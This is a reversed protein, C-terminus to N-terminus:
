RQQRQILAPDFQPNAYPSVRKRFISTYRKPNLRLDQSLWRIHEMSMNINNYLSDNTLLQGLSGNGNQLNSVLLNITGIATDATAMTLRLRDIAAESKTLTSKLDVQNLNSSFGEVNALINKIQSNSQKLNASIDELNAVISSIRGSSAAVVKNLQESIARLNEITRQMDQYTKRINNPDNPDNDKLTLTDLINSFGSEVMNLYGNVDNPDLMSNLMGVVRGKLYSGNAACDPGSCPRDFVLRLAKSGMVGTVFVEAIANQPVQIGTGINIAVVITRMDEKKLRIDTVVGAKFGNIYVPSAVQLEGVYDYEVYLDTSNSFLNTGLLFKYGWFSAALVLIALIAIRVEKSM